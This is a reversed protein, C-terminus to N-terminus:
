QRSELKIWVGSLPNMITTRVITPLPDRTKECRVAVYKRIFKALAIKMELIAFRGGICNRPGTGFPLYSM